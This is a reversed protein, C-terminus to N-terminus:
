SCAPHRETSPSKVSADASIPKPPKRSLFYALGGLWLVLWAGGAFGAAWDPIEATRAPVHLTAQIVKEHPWTNPGTEFRGLRGPVGSADQLEPLKIIAQYLYAIESEIAPVNIMDHTKLLELLVNEDFVAGEHTGGHIDVYRYTKEPWRVHLAWPEYYSGGYYLKLSQLPILQPRSFWCLEEGRLEVWIHGHAGIEQALSYYVPVQRTEMYRTPALTYFNVAVVAGAACAASTWLVAKWAQSLPRRYGPMLVGVRNLDNGCEPCITTPLGRVCYRCHGCCPERVKDRYWVILRVAGALGTLCALLTLGQYALFVIRM